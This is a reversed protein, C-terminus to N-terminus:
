MVLPPEDAADHVWDAPPFLEPEARAIAERMSAAVFVSGCCLVVDDTIVCDGAGARACAAMALDLAQHMTEAAAWEVRAGGCGAMAAAAAADVIASPELSKPHSSSVAIGARLTPGLGTGLAALVAPVDKDRNAGFIVVVRAERGYEAVVSATLAAVSPENHAVDLLLLRDALAHPRLAEFRAPLRAARLGAACTADTGSGADDAAGHGKPGEQSSPPLLGRADLSRVM